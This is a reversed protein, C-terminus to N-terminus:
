DGAPQWCTAGLEWAERPVSKLRLSNRLELDCRAGRGASHRADLPQGFNPSFFRSHETGRLIVSDIWELRLTGQSILPSKQWSRMLAQGRGKGSIKKRKGVIGAKSLM